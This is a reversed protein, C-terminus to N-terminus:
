QINTFHPPIDMETIREDSMDASLRVVPDYVSVPKPMLSPVEAITRLKAFTYMEIVRLFDGPYERRVLGDIAIAMRKVNVYQGDYRMSGSMDMVVTTACKPTNRTQHIEIDEPRMRVPLGPGDRLMANLMSQTADMHTVSDGFEYGRTRPLEVPGEGEIPGTHRGSRAAQLDSFIAELLHGQFLRMAKPTLRYGDPTFELGQREAMERLYDSVQQQLARLEDLDGPEAFGALQEMDIVAIQATERAERLQELLADIAELEAKIELAEPVTMPKRGTFEHDAALLDVQYKEGLREVLHLLDRAFPTQEDEVRYWLGELDRLQEGDVDRRFRRGLHPPPEMGAAQDRYARRAREQVTRTEWAALIRRKREQLMAILADLSPGLGRIQSPDLHVARALEEETLERMGGYALLHEFAGSVVDPPPSTPSPFTKPDYAQYTHIIGGPSARVEPRKRSDRPSDDDPLGHRDRAM